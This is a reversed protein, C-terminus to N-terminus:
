NNDWFIDPDLQHVPGILKTGGTKALIAYIDAIAKKDQDTFTLVRGKCYSERLQQQTSPDNTRTLPIVANWHSDSSCLLEGAQRTATLLGNVANTNNLAWNKRFVYGLIPVRQKIGLQHIIQHTNIIERYGKAKLRASYHWFNILAELENQQLINNLLPPAGFVKEVSTNFDIGKTLGYARLLLWSKDLAGGAIGLRKGVLDNISRIPSSEPVMISGTSSSYPAFLYNSSNGRQRAVWTWDSVIIDSANAQLSIRSAQTSALPTVILEFGNKKDLNNKKITELTWNVTGFKLVAINIPTINNNAHALSAVLCLTSLLLLQIKNIPTM